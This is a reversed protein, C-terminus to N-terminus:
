ADGSLHARLADHVAEFRAVHEAPPLDDLGDLGDLARRVGEASDAPAPTEETAYFEDM